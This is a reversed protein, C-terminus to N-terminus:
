FNIPLKLFAPLPTETWELALCWVTFLVFILSAALLVSYVANIKEPSPGEIKIGMRAPVPPMEPQDM